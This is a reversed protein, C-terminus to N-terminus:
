RPAAARRLPVPSGAIRLAIWLAKVLCHQRQRGLFVVPEVDLATGRRPLRAARGRRAAAAAACLPLLRQRADGLGLGLSDGLPLEEVIGAREETDDDRRGRARRREIFCALEPRQWAIARPPAHRLIQRKAPSRRPRLCAQLAGGILFDFIARRGRGPKRAQSDGHCLAVDDALASASIVTM